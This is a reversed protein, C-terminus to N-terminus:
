FALRCHYLSVFFLWTLQSYPHVLKQAIKHTCFLNASLLRHLPTGHHHASLQSTATATVVYCALSATKVFVPSAANILHRLWSVLMWLIHQLLASYPPKIGCINRNHWSYSGSYPLPSASPRFTLHFSRFVKSFFKWQTPEQQKYFISEILMEGFTGAATTLPQPWVAPSTWQWNQSIANIIQIM